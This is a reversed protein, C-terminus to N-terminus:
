ESDINYYQLHQCLCYIISELYIPKRYSFRYKHNIDAIDKVITFKIQNPLIIMKGLQSLIYLQLDLSNTHNMYYMYCIERITEITQKNLPQKIVSHINNYTIQITEDPITSTLTPPLALSLYRSRINYDLKNINDSHLIFCINEYSRECISKLKHINGKSMNQLNLIIIVKKQIIENYFNPSASIQKILDMSPQKKSYDVNVLYVGNTEKYHTNYDFKTDLKLSNMLDLNAGHLIINLNRQKLLKTLFSETFIM